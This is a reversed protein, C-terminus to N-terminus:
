SLPWASAALVLDPAFGALAVEVETTRTSDGSPLTAQTFWESLNTTRSKESLGTGSNFEFINRYRAPLFIPSTLIVPGTLSLLM